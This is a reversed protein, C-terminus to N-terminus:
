GAPIAIAVSPRAAGGWDASLRAQRKNLQHVLVSEAQPQLGAPTLADCHADGVRPLCHAPGARRCWCKLQSCERLRRHRLVDIRHHLLADPHPLRCRLFSYRM